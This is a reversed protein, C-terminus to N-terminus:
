ALLMGVRYCAMTGFFVIISWGLAKFGGALGRSRFLYFPLAVVTLVVMSIKLVISAKYGRRREDVLFWAFVLVLSAVAHLTLLWSGREPGRLPAYELCGFVLAMLPLAVLLKTEVKRM